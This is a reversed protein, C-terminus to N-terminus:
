SVVDKGSNIWAVIGGSLDYVKKFGANKMIKTGDDSRNGTRCYVLYIKNKDLSKIQNEFDQYYDINVANKIHGSEFESKTRIDLIVFNEDKEAKEVLSSFEKSDVEKM